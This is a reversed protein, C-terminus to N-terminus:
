AWNFKTEKLHTLKEDSHCLLQDFYCLIIYMKKPETESAETSSRESGNGALFSLVIASLNHYSCLHGGWTLWSAWLSLCLVLALSVLYLLIFDGLPGWWWMHGRLKALAGKNADTGVLAIQNHMWWHLLGRILNFDEHDQVKGFGM